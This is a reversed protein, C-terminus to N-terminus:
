RYSKQKKARAGPGGFKKREKARTDSVLLTRDYEHYAEKLKVDGSWEVLGRAIATRVAGAQGMIGGGRVKVDIDVKDRLDGAIELPELMKLRALEPEVIEIPVSNIRVRGKGERITAKATATKKKGSENVIKSM